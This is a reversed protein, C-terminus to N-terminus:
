YKYMGCKMCKSVSHDDFTTLKREGGCNCKNFIIHRCKSCSWYEQNRGKFLNMKGNCYSKTCRM